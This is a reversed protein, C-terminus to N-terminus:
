GRGDREHRRRMVSGQRDPEHAGRAHKRGRGSGRLVQKLGRLVVVVLLLLGLLLLGLLLLGLLLGGEHKGPAWGRGRRAHRGPLLLQLLEDKPLLRHERLLAHLDLRMPLRLLAGQRKKRSLLLQLGRLGLLLQLVVELLRLKSEAAPRRLLLVLRPQLSGPIGASGSM